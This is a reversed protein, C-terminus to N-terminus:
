PTCTRAASRGPSSAFRDYTDSDLVLLQTLPTGHIELVYALRVFLALLAVLVFGIRPADRV